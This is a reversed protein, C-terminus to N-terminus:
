RYSKGKRAAYREIRVFMPWDGVLLDPLVCGEGENRVIAKQRYGYLTDVLEASETRTGPLCLTVPVPQCGDDGASARWLGVLLEGRGNRYIKVMLDRPAGGLVVAGVDSVGRVDDLVTSVYGASYYGARPSMDSSRVVAWEQIGNANYLSWWVARCGLWANLAFFRALHKAQTLESLDGLAPMAPEGPAFWNMEDAWIEMKPNYKHVLARFAAIEDEYTNIEAPKPKWEFTGNVDMLFTPAAIEPTPHGYPHFAYADIYPGAGEEFAIRTFDLSCGAVGGFVVVAEPNAEKAAKAAVALARGYAQAMSVKGGDAWADFFWGNEENWIEFYKVRGRFHKAMFACYNAFGRIAEPTTPACQLFPHSRHWTPGFDIPDKIQQYLNNGYDLTLLIDIGSKVSEDIGHEVDPEITYMGKTREVTAWDLKDGWQNVRNLKVGSKLMLPWTKKITEPSNFWANHQSSARIRAGGVAIAKGAAEFLAMEAIRFQFPEFPACFFSTAGQRLRTAELRVYRAPREAFTFKQWSLKGVRLPDGDPAQQLQFDTEDVVTEWRKGDESVAITFASPVGGNEWAPLFRVDGIPQAKGLDLEISEPNRPIAIRWWRSAWCTAPDGDTVHAPAFPVEDDTDRPLHATIGFLNGKLSASPLSKLDGVRESNGKQVTARTPYPQWAGTADEYEHKPDRTAVVSLWQAGQAHVAGAHARVTIQSRGTKGAVIRWLLWNAEKARLRVSGTPQGKVTIEPPVSLGVEIGSVAQMSTNEICARVVIEENRKVIGPKLDFWVFSLRSNNEDAVAGVMGLLVVVVVVARRYLM